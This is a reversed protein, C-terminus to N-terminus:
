MKIVQTLLHSNEFLRAASVVQQLGTLEVNSVELQRIVDTLRDTPSSFESWSEWRSVPPVFIKPSPVFQQGGSRHSSASDSVWKLFLLTWVYLLREPGHFYGRVADEIRYLEFALTAATTKPTNRM